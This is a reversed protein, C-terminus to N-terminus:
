SIRMKNLVEYKELRERQKKFFEKKDPDLMVQTYNTYNKEIDSYDPRQVVTLPVILYWNHKEQLHFWYKDIAYERHMDPYRILLNLGQKFNNFLEKFYHNRVLYGTTTQCKKVKLAYDGRNQFPPINNGAIIIVDFDKEREMTKNLQKEFLSPDLFQIDDEVVLIHDLNNQIAYELIKIHSITCGIAGNSMEIAKFRSPKTSFNIKKLEEQVLLNRDKRKDLNIYIINKIDKLSNM